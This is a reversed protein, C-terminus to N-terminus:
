KSYHSWNPERVEGAKSALEFTQQGLISVVSLVGTDGKNTAYIIMSGNPSFFPSEDLKNSTMITLDQTAIDLMAIRYDRDLRHVLALSKGDPSFVAKANYSGDFTARKIKGSALHKIYVQVQGSRNSTFAIREGDPSFSAETDIGVDQTLRTLKKNSLHYAYIDKNGEKSLTLVISEGNPHWAPASAIGDFYPLKQTKRRMFPYQIFVESRGNKFSVYAIKNQDPSWAPSLIPSAARFITQPNQADSDSIELRYERKGQGKNAVTVYALRTDFSGKVGLLAFYIQDSLYHAIRRIGSNHVAFKKAYLTKKSYTDILEIEVNFIKQSVQDLKGVVIAEIKKAQWQKFNIKNGIIQKASSANFEGSRNFNDRMIHAIAEGQKADGTVSFPSIVIPFADEDTKLVTVELVAFASSIYFAFCAAILKIM